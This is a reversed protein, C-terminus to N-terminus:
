SFVSYDTNSKRFTCYFHDEFIIQKLELYKLRLVKFEIDVNLKLIFENNRIDSVYNKNNSDIAMWFKNFEPSVITSTQVATTNRESVQFTHVNREASVFKEKNFTNTLM